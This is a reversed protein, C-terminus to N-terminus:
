PGRDGSSRKRLICNLVPAGRGACRKKGIPLASITSSDRHQPGGREEASELTLIRGKGGEFRIIEAGNLFM